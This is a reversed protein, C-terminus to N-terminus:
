RSDLRKQYLRLIQLIIRLREFNEVRKKILPNKISGNAFSLFDRYYSFLWRGM